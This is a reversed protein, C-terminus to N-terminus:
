HSPTLRYLGSAHPSFHFTYGHSAKALAKKEWLNRIECTDPLGIKSFTVRIDQVSADGVNFVALSKSNSRPVDSVWGIQDRERFFQHSNVGNQNVEIVEENTMLSLSFADNSPLDGGYMLPSRAIAWLTMLTRQEDHTVRTMRDDGREARIGIRGLPLMDADPWSGPKSYQAWARLREFAKLIKGAIGFIM